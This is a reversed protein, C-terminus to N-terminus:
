ISTTRQLVSQFSTFLTSSLLILTTGAEVVCDISPLGGILSTTGVTISNLQVLQTLYIDQTSYFYTLPNGIISAWKINPNSVYNVGMEM